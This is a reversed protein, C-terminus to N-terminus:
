PNGEPLRTGPVYCGIPKTMLLGPQILKSSVFVAQSTITQYADNRNGFCLSGSRYSAAHGPFQNGESGLRLQQRRGLPVPVRVLGPEPLGGAYRQPDAGALAVAQGVAVPV